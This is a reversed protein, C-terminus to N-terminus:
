KNKGYFDILMNRVSGNEKVVDKVLKDMVIEGKDLLILRHCILEVEEPMHSIFILTSHNETQYNRFFEILSLQMKLDLGTILEDLIVVEPKNLISLMANFRQKQGGSLSNLDSKLFERIEFIDKLKEVWDDQEKNTYFKLVRNPTTGRPWNGEQFQIGIENKENKTKIEIDGSTKNLVGALIEVLTTKGSGNGGIIAVTDNDDIEFSINNIATKKGYKKTLNTVKIM